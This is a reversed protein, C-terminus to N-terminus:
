ACSRGGVMFPVVDWSGLEAASGLVWISAAADASGAVDMAGAGAGMGCAGMEAVPAVAVGGGAAAIRSDELGEDMGGKPKAGGSRGFAWPLGM